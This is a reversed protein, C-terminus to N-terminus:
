QLESEVRALIFCLDSLRNLYKINDEHVPEQQGLRWMAREARRVITRAIHLFSSAKDDGPIVFKSLPELQADFADIVSELRTVYSENVKGEKGLSAVDAMLLWLEQEITLLETAVAENTAHARALGLFAQVEDISGYAEVRLSCKDVREGTFLSTQGKDGTKTYVASGM